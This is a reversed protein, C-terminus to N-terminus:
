KIGYLVVDMRGSTPNYSAFKCSTDSIYVVVGQVQNLSISIDMGINKFESVTLIIPNIIKTGDFLGILVKKYNSINNNLTKTESTAM